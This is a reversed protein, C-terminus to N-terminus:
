SLPPNAKTEADLAAQRAVEDAARAAEVQKDVVVKEADTADRFRDPAATTIKYWHFSAQPDSPDLGFEACVAKAAAAKSPYMAGTKTDVQPSPSRNAGFKGKPKAEGNTTKNSIDQMGELVTTLVTDHLDLRENVKGIGALIQQLPDASVPAAAPAPVAAAAVPEPAKAPPAAPPAEAPTAPPPPPLPANGGTNKTDKEAM